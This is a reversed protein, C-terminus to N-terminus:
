CFFGDIRNMVSVPAEVQFLRRLGEEEEARGGGEDEEEDNMQQQRGVSSWGSCEMEIRM